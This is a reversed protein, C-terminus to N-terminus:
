RGTTGSTHLILAIQDEGLAGDSDGPNEIKQIPDIIELRIKSGDMFCEAVAVNSENAAKTAASGKSSSGRPVVILSSRTDQLYFKIEEVRYGPNLPANVASLNAVAFFLAIFEFSNPLVNSVVAGTGIGADSLASTLDDVAAQLADYSVAPGDKGLVVRSSQPGSDTLIDGLM